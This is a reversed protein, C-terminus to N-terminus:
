GTGEALLRPFYFFFGFFSFRHTMEGSQLVASLRKAVVGRIQAM